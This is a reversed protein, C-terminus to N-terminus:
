SASINYIENQKSKELVYMVARVVDKVSVMNTKKDKEWLVLMKEQNMKYMAANMANLTVYNSMDYRGYVIVPRLICFNLGEIRM